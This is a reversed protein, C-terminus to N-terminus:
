GIGLSKLFGPSAIDQAKLYAPIVFAILIAVLLLLVAAWIAIPPLDGKLGKINIPM